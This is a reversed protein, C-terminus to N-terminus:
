HWKIVGKHGKQRCCSQCDLWDNGTVWPPKICAQIVSGCGKISDGCDVGDIAAKEDQLDGGPALPGFPNGGRETSRAALLACLRGARLNILCAAVCHVLKDAGAGHEYRIEDEWKSVEVRTTEAVHYCYLGAGLTAIAVSATIIVVWMLAQPLFHTENSLYDPPPFNLLYMRVTSGNSDCVIVESRSQGGLEFLSNNTAFPMDVFAGFRNVYITAGMCPLYEEILSWRNDSTERSYVRM